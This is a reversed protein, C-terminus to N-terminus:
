RDIINETGANTGALTTGLSFESQRSIRGSLSPRSALPLLGGLQPTGPISSSPTVDGLIEDV